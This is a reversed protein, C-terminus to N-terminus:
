SVDRDSNKDHGTDCLLEFIHMCCCCCISCLVPLTSEIPKYISLGGPCQLPLLPTPVFPEVLTGIDDHDHWPWAPWATERYHNHWRHASDNSTPHLLLHSSSPSTALPTLCDLHKVQWVLTLTLWAKQSVHAGGRKEAEGTLPPFPPQVWNAGRRAVDCSLPLLFGHAWCVAHNHGPEWPWNSARPTALGLICQMPNIKATSVPGWM